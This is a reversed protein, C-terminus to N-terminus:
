DTVQSCLKRGDSDKGLPINGSHPALLAGTRRRDGPSKRWHKGGGCGAVALWALNASCMWCKNSKQVLPHPHRFFLKGDLFGMCSSCFHSPGTQQTILMSKYYKIFQQTYSDRLECESRESRPRMRLGILTLALNSDEPQPPHHNMMDHSICVSHFM